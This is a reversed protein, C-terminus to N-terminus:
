IFSKAFFHDSYLLEDELLQVNSVQKMYPLEYYTNALTLDEPSDITKPSKCLSWEVLGRWSEHNNQHLAARIKKLTKRTPHVGTMSVGVGTIIARGNHKDQLKMKTKNLKFKHLRFLGLVASMISDKYTLDNFSFTLDDAYRTYIITPNIKNLAQSLQADFPIMAINSLIPSTPFGQPLRNNILIIKLTDASVYPKLYETTISDFFDKIDLSLVYRQTIHAQANTISNRGNCFAHDCDVIKQVHYIHKLSIGVHQLLAKFEITPIYIKRLQGSNKIIHKCRYPIVHAKRFAEPYYTYDRKKEAHILITTNKNTHMLIKTDKNSM